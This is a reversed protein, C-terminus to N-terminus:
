PVSRSFEGFLASAASQYAAAAADQTDFRGLRKRRGGAQIDAAWKNRAEDFYVGKIKSKSHSRAAVNGGNQSVTATRLNARRNDLGDGNRHDTVFGDPTGNVVRHMHVFKKKGSERICRAAYFTGGVKRAFWKWQSLSAYDEDDVVAHKGQTLAITKSM